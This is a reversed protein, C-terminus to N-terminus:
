DGAVVTVRTGDPALISVTIRLPGTLPIFAEYRPPSTPGRRRIRNRVVQIQSSRPFGGDNWPIENLPFSGSLSRLRLPSFVPGAGPQLTPGAGSPLVRLPVPPFAVLGPGVLPPIPGVLPLRLLQQATIEMVYPPRRRADADTSIGVWVGQGAIAKVDTISVHVGPPPAVWGPVTLTQVSERGLPDVLRLAVDVPHAAVPRTFWLALPSRGAVRDGQELVPDTAAVAPPTTLPTAPVSPLEVSAVAQLGASGDVRHVGAPLVRPPATTATRVVVGRHDGGWVDALLPELEPQGPPVLLSVVDSAPSPVGREAKVPVALVPVALVRILWPDWRGPLTGTWTATWVPQGLVPDVDSPSPVSTVPVDAFAPGMTSVDRAAEDSTTRYLRFRQVAIDSAAYLSLTVTGDLAIAPRAVPPGPARLRPAMVPRLHTHPAGGGEPWPSEVGSKTMTTVAFLHIDTSGKPLTVDHARVAGDLEHLRRFAARRETPTMDDYAAWLAALRAGPVDSDPARAPLGPRRQRLSTESVEWIICTRVDAGAPLSWEVRVHSSGQADPTSGLPVGPLAPPPLPSVPVPSAAAALAPHTADPAWASPSTGVLLHSRTWVQVGWRGTGSFDLAPVDATVAYRRGGDGQGPGAPVIDTGDASLPDVACGVPVPDDGAFTFGVDRRFCGAPAPSAPSLGAPPPDTPGGMPYYIAVVDVQTPTRELWEVALEAKHTSPCAPSGAYRTDLAVSVVRPPHPAPESGNWPVDQWPSWLGHVDSVAVAYGVHRGGSGIGIEQGGDVLAIRDNGPQGELGDPSVLLPRDGGSDRPPLLSTAAGVGALDYRALAAETVSSTAANRPVRDWTLRVSERWAADATVPVVLGALESVLATPTPVLLHADPAPAYAAFEAGGRDPPALQSYRGTVLFDCHGVAVQRDDLPELSYNAGFGCALNLFPDSLAPLMLMPWPGAEASASASSVKGGQQPPDVSRNSTVAFQQYERVSTSYMPPLEPFLQKRVEEVLLKPDPTVWPPAARGAETVPGWGIPPGGRRLRAIAADVPSMPGAVPGQDGTDYDFGAGPQDVPLGVIELPTWAPDNVIRDLPDIAVTIHTGNYVRAYTAGSTRVTISLPGSGTPRVSGAAVVHDTDEGNRLLYVAVPKAPDIPRCTVRVCGAEVGGWWLFPVSGGWITTRVKKPADKVDRVWVTFPGRPVGLGPGCAWTLHIDLSRSRILKEDFLPSHRDVEVQGFQELARRQSAALTAWPMRVATARFRTSDSRRAM